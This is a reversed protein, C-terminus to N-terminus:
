KKRLLRRLTQLRATTDALTDAPIPEEGYRARIFADTVVEATALAPAFDPPLESRLRTLFAAPTESPARRWGARAFTEALERYRLALVAMTDGRRARATALHRERLSAWWLNLGPRSAAGLFVLTLGMTFLAAFGRRLVGRWLKRASRAVQGPLNTPAATSPPQPNFTVWGYGPFYLEVWLHADAERLTRRNPAPEVGELYGVAVRAPIGAAEARQLAPADPRNSAVAAIPLGGDILAQLNTGRGSVLVGIV